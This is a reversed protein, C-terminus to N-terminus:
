SRSSNSTIAPSAERNIRRSITSAEHAHIVGIRSPQCCCPVLHNGSYSGPVLTGDFRFPQYLRVAAGPM